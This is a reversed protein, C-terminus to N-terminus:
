ADNWANILSSRTFVESITLIFPLFLFCFCSIVATLFLQVGSDRIVKILRCCHVLAWKWPCVWLQRILILLKDVYCLGKLLHPKRLVKLEKGARLVTLQLWCGSLTSLKVGVITVERPLSGCLCRSDFCTESTSICICLLIYQHQCTSLISVQWPFEHERAQIGGVILSQPLDHEGADEYKSRGCEGELILYDSFTNRVSNVKM